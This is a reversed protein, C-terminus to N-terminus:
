RGLARDIRARFRSDFEAFSSEGASFEVGNVFITPTGSVGARVGAARDAEIRRSAHDSDADRHLRDLDLGLQRALEDFRAQARGLDASPEDGGPSLAWSDYNDYLAHYMQRYKGQMAAAEAMRAAPVALPHKQIPFNRVVLTIRGAYDHELGNIVNSYFAACAPCQYDLFEVVTVKGDAAELLAHGEVTRSAEAPEGGPRQSRNVVLVGLIVVVAVIVVM